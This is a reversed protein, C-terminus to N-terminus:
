PCSSSPPWGPGSMPSPVRPSSAPSPAVAGGVYDGGLILPLTSQGHLGFRHFIRDLIFAIRAMYGSDELIAVLAFMIVFIPLYNLM